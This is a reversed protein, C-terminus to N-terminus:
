PNLFRFFRFVQSLEIPEAVVVQFIDNYFYEVFGVLPFSKRLSHGL